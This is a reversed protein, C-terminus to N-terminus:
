REKLDAVGEVGIYALLPALVQWVETTDLKWWGVGNGFVVIAGVLSAIFKRSAFRKLTEKM